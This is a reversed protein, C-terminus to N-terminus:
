YKFSRKASYPGLKMETWNGKSDYIFECEWLGNVAFNFDNSNMQGHPTGWENFSKNFWEKLSMKQEVKLTGEIEFKFKVQKPNGHEDEGIFEIERLMKNAKIQQTRGSTLRSFNTTVEGVWSWKTMVGNENINAFTKFKTKTDTRKPEIGNSSLIEKFIANAKFYNSKGTFYMNGELDVKLQVSENSTKDGFFGIKKTINDAKCFTNQTLPASIRKLDSKKGNESFIGSKSPDTMMIYRGSSVNYIPQLDRSILKEKKGNELVSFQEVKLEKIRRKNDFKMKFDISEMGEKTISGSMAKPSGEFNNLPFFQYPFDIEYLQGLIDNHAYFDVFKKLDRNIVFFLKEYRKAGAAYYNVFSEIDSYNKHKKFDKMGIVLGKREAKPLKGQLLLDWRRIKDLTENIEKGYKLYNQKAKEPEELWAYCVSLNHYAVWRTKNSTNDIGKEIINVFNQVVKKEEKNLLLGKKGKFVGLVPKILKKSEKIEKIVGLKIPASFQGFGFRAFVDQRVRNVAANIGIKEAATLEGSESVAVSFMKGSNKPPTYNKTKQSGKLVGLNRELILEGRPNTIRYRCNIYYPVDYYGKNDAQLTSMGASPSPDEENLVFIEVIIAKNSKPKAIIYPPIFNWQDFRGKSDIEDNLTNKIKEVTTVVKDVADNAKGGLLNISGSAFGFPKSKAEDAKVKELVADHLIFVDASAFKVGESPAQFYSIKDPGKISQAILSFGMMTLISVFLLKKMKKM